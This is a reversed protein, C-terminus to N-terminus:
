WPVPTGDWSFFGGTPGDDALLALRVAGEAAEAPDGASALAARPHLDTARLGPALANVKFGEEALAQGYYLTLANLAAKGSRYAAGQGRFAAFEREPDAGWTLSGTGSSINVIRPAPSRRLAPLFANTVALVGFLNTEYTRRLGDVTLETPRSDDVVVGANNVLVDLTGIRAAAAAIGEADTVDLVLLRAGGGIEEVAKEGRGADRSGVYVTFGEAVLLRAIEKGIGKNAGTVLATRDNM